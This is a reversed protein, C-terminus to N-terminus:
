WRHPYGKFFTVEVYTGEKSHIMVQRLASLILM